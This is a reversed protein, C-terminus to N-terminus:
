HPRDSRYVVVIALRWPRLARRLLRLRRGARHRLSRRGYAM